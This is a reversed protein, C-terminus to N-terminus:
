VLTRNLIEAGQAAPDVVLEVCRPLNDADGQLSQSVIGQAENWAEQWMNRLDPHRREAVGPVFSTVAPPLPTESADSLRTVLAPSLPPSLESSPREPSGGIECIECPHCRWPSPTRRPAGGRPATRVNGCSERGRRSSEEGRGARRAGVICCAWRPGNGSRERRACRGLQAWTECVQFPRM